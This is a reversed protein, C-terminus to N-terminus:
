KTFTMDLMLISMVSSELLATLLENKNSSLELYLLFFIYYIIRSLERRFIRM